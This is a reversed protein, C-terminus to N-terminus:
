RHTRSRWRRTAWRWILYLLLCVAAVLFVYLLIGLSRYLKCGFHDNLFSGLFEGIGSAVAPVLTIWVGVLLHNRKKAALSRLRIDRWERLLKKLSVANHATPDFSLFAAHEVPLTDGPSLLLVEVPRKSFLRCVVQAVALSDTVVYRAAVSPPILGVNWWPAIQYFESVRAEIDLVIDERDVPGDLVAIELSQEQFADRIWEIALEDAFCLIRLSM